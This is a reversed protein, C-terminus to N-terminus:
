LIRLLLNLTAGKNFAIRVFLTNVDDSYSCARPTRVSKEALISFHGLLRQFTLPCCSQYKMDLFWGPTVCIMWSFTISLLLDM